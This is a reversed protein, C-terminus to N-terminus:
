HERSSPILVYSQEGLVCRLDGVTLDAAQAASDASPYLTLRNFRSSLDRADVTENHRLSVSTNSTEAYVPLTDSAALEM